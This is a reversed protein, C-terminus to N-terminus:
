DAFGIRRKMVKARETAPMFGDHGRCHAETWAVIQENSLSLDFPAAHPQPIHWPTHTYIEVRNGDPDRFYVSWANGHTTTALVEMGAAKVRDHMTRVDDLTDVLFSVQQAPKIESDPQGSVLVFQHHEDPDNSLFVIKRDGPIDGRDSITLGVVQTYFETMADLDRVFMGVHTLQPRPSGPMAEERNPMIRFSAPYAWGAISPSQRAMTDARLATQRCPNLDFPL